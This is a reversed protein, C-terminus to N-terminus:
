SDTKVPSMYNESVWSAYSKLPRVAWGKGGEEAPPYASGVDYILWSNSITHVIDEGERFNSYPAPTNAM